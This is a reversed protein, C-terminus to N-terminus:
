IIWKAIYYKIKEVSVVKWYSLLIKGNARIYLVNELNYFTYYYTFVPLSITICWSVISWIIMPILFYYKSLYSNLLMIPYILMYVFFKCLVKCSILCPTYKISRRFSKTYPKTFASRHGYIQHNACRKCFYEGTGLLDDYRPDIHEVLIKKNDTATM